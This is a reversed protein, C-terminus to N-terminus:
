KTHKSLRMEVVIGHVRLTSKVLGVDPAYYSILSASEDNELKWSSVVKLCDQYTKDGTKLSEIAEIKMAINEVEWEHGVVPPFPLTLVEPSGPDTEGRTYLGKPTLRRYNTQNPVGPVGKNLTIEKYYTQKDIEATGEIRVVVTAKQVGGGSKSIETEYEWRSNATLPYYEAASSERSCGYFVLTALLVALTRRTNM